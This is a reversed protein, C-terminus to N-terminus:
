SKWVNLKQLDKILEAELEKFTLKLSPRQPFILIDAPKISKQLNTLISKLRRKLKNRDTVHPLVKKPIIFGFRPQNQNRLATRARLTQSSVSRTFRKHAFDAETKLLILRM